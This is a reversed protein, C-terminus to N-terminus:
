TGARKTAPPTKGEVVILQYSDPNWKPKVVTNAIEVAFYFALQSVRALKSTDILKVEDDARHYQEIRVSGAIVPQRNRENGREREGAGADHKGRYRQCQSGTLAGHHATALLHETSGAFYEVIQLGLAPRAHMALRPPDDAASWERAALQYADVPNVPEDQAHFWM